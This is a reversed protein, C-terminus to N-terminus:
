DWRYSLKIEANPSIKIWLDRYRALVPAIVDVQDTIVEAADWKRCDLWIHQGIVAKRRRESFERDHTILAADHDQAYVTLDDDGAAYLRASSVPWAHHGLQTLARVVAVDVNHDCVFRM